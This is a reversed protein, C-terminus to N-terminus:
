TTILLLRGRGEIDWYVPAAQEGDQWVFVLPSHLAPIGAFGSLDGYLLLLLFRSEMLHRANKYKNGNLGSEKEPQNRLQKLFAAIWANIRMHIM